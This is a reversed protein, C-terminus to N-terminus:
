MMSASSLLGMAHLVSVVDRGQNLAYGLAIGAQSLSVLGRDCLSALQEAELGFDVGPNKKESGGKERAQSLEFVTGHLASSPAVLMFSPEGTEREFAQSTQPGGTDPMVALYGASTRVLPWAGAREWLALAGWQAMCCGISRLYDAQAKTEVGEALATMGLRRVMGVVSELIDNGRQSSEDRALFRMDLKVTHAPIDKLMNLSSYGSGFDDIEVTFGRAVLGRIADILRNSSQVFASETIELHLLNLPIAYRKTLSTLVELFDARLLDKRSVNVSIPPPACRKNLLRRLLACAQEWVYKDLEYIFGNREFIEIFQGPYVLRASKPRHWRVLAEAGIPVGTAHDYQPQLWMEFQGEHLASFMESAIEQEFLLRSRMSEDFTAVYADYRSRISEEALAARSVLSRVSVSPDDAVCRGVNIKIGRSLGPPNEAQARCLDPGKSDLCERPYLLVFRDSVYHCGVADLPGAFSALSRAVHALVENGRREGYRKNLATFRLINLYSLVYHGPEHGSIMRTARDLFEERSSLSVAPGAQTEKTPAHAGCLRIVNDLAHLLSRPDCPGQVCSLAGLSLAKGQARGDSTGLLAVAPIRRGAANASLARLAAYGSGSADSLDVLAVAVDDPGQGLADALETLNGVERCQYAERALVSRLGRRREATAAFLLMVNASHEM